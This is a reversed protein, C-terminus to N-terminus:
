TIKRKGNDKEKREIKNTKLYNEFCQEDSYDSKATRAYHFGAMFHKKIEETM